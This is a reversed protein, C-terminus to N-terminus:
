GQQQCSAIAKPLRGILDTAVLGISGGMESVFLDGAQGHIYAAVVAAQLPELKQALLGAIVGTLVDGAGGTAMGPNGTTNKYLEKTPSSILTEFGKLLVVCQYIKAALEVVSTRDEQVQETTMGLLRAMEGPHPTLVTESKRKKILSEGRDKEQALINLADADIVLPVQCLRIFDCAFAAVEVDTGMGPGMAVVTAKEALFLAETLAEKSFSGFASQKLGHTMIAPSLRSVVQAQLEQPVALTVLGAGVRAAAEAALIASGVLGMSGSIVVVHGYKGKNIDRGNERIPFWHAIDSKKTIKELDMTKSLEM